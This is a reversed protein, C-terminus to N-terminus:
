RRLKQTALCNDGGANSYEGREEILQQFQWRAYLREGTALPVTTTNALERWM